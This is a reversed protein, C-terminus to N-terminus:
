IKYFRGEKVKAGTADASMKEGDNLLSHEGGGGKELPWPIM